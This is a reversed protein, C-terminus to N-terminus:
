RACRADRAAPLASCPSGAASGLQEIPWERRWPVECHPAPAAVAGDDIGPRDRGNRGSRDAHRRPRLPRGSRTELKTQGHWSPTAARPAACHGARVSPLRPLYGIPGTRHPPLPPRFPRSGRDWRPVSPRRRAARRGAVRSLPSPTLMVSAAVRSCNSRTPLRDDVIGVGRGADARVVGRGRAGGSLSARPRAPTAVDCAGDRLRRPRDGRPPPPPRRPLGQREGGGPRRPTLSAEGDGWGKVVLAVNEVPSAPSAALTLALPERAAAASREVIWAREGPDYDGGSDGACEIKVAAPSEWSRALSALEAVGADSMGELHVKTVSDRTKEIEKWRMHTLSSHSARDAALAYRGNSPEFATPWHNWWPYISVDRRVEGSYVDFSPEDQWRAIAFPKYRSRTHIVQIGSREPQEPEFPPTAKEWSVDVSQGRSNALTLGVPALADNPTTGPGMVVIGEHWERKADPLSSHVVIKRVGVGDPYVTHIEDTWDAWDTLPDPYAPLYGVGIPAYRWHVVARADSSELIRVHSYRCQKDSMPEASGVMGPPFTEVFENDYWIGNETM